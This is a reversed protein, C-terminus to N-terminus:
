RGNVARKLRQGLRTINVDQSVLVSFGYVTSAFEVLMVVMEDTAHATPRGLDLVLSQLSPGLVGSTTV